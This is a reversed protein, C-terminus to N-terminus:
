PNRSLVQRDEFLAPQGPSAHRLARAFQVISDLGDFGFAIGSPRPDGNAPYVVFM